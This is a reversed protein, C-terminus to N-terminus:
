HAGFCAFSVSALAGPCRSCDAEVVSRRRVISLVANRVIRRTAVILAARELIVGTPRVTATARGNVSAQAFRRRLGDRSVCCSGWTVITAGRIRIATAAGVVRVRPAPAAAAVVAAPLGVAAARVGHVVSASAAIHVVNVVVARICREIHRLYFQDCNSFTSRGDAANSITGGGGRM